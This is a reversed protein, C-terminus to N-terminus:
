GNKVEVSSPHITLTVGRSSKVGQFPGARGIKCSSTHLMFGIQVCLSPSFDKAETPSRIDIARGDM